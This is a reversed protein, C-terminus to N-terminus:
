CWAAGTERVGDAQAVAEGDVRQEDIESAAVPQEDAAVAHVALDFALGLEGLEQARPRGFVARAVEDPSGGLVAAVVRGGDHDFDALAEHTAGIAVAAQDGGVELSRTLAGQEDVKGLREGQARKRDRDFDFDGGALDDGTEDRAIEDRVDHEVAHDAVGVFIAGDAGPRQDKGLREDGDGALFLKGDGFLARAQKADAGVVEGFDAGVWPKSGLEVSPEGSV